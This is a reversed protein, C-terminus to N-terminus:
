RGLVFAVGPLLMRLDRLHLRKGPGPLLMRLWRDNPDDAKYKHGIVSLGISLFICAFFVLVLLVRDLGDSIQITTSSMNDSVKASTPTSLLTMAAAHLCLVEAPVLAVVADIGISLGPREQDMSARKPAKKRRKLLAGYAYSSM